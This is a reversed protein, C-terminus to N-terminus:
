CTYPRSSGGQGAPRSAFFGGMTENGLSAKSGPHNVPV